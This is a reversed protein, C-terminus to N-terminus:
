EVRHWINVALSPGINNMPTNQSNYIARLNQYTLKSIDYSTSGGSSIGAQVPGVCCLMNKGNLYIPIELSPLEESTLTHTEEGYVSGITHTDSCQRLTLNSDIKNWTGGFSINPDFNNNDTYYYSGVPYFLNLLESLSPTNGGGGM